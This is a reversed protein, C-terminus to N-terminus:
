CLEVHREWEWEVGKGEGPGDRGGGIDEERVNRIRLHTNYRKQITSQPLERSSSLTLHPSPIREERNPHHTVTLGDMVCYGGNAIARSKVPTAARTEHPNAHTLELVLSESPDPRSSLMWHSRKFFEVTMKAWVLEWRQPIAGERIEEARDKM